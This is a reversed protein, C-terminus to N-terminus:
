YLTCNLWVHPINSVHTYVTCTAHNSWSAPCPRVLHEPWLLHRLRGLNSYAATRMIRCVVSFRAIEEVSLRILINELVELPIGKVM